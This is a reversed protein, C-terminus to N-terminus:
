EHTRRKMIFKDYFTYLFGAIGGPLFIVIIVLTGGVIISWYETYSRVINQLLQFIIAGIFPGALNYIGGLISMFAAEGSTTWFAMEPFISRDFPGVLAGALGGVGGAFVFIMLQYNRVKIGLYETRNPNERISRLISGFHSDLILKSILGTILVLSLTLYYYNNTYRLDISLGFLMLEPVPIGVLGNDGGTFNYWKFVIAYILQSFALTLMAFYVRTLRVCFFGIVFAIAGSLLVSGVIPVFISVSSVKKLYLSCAYAGVTYYASQGFSLMGTYGLLLTFSLSLLSMIFMKIILQIYYESLILPVLYFVIVLILWFGVNQWKIKKLVMELGVQRAKWIFGL